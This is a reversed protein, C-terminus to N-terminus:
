QLQYARIYDIEFLVEEDFISNDIGKVGGWSGGIALNVILFFPEHFPWDGSDRLQATEAFTKILEGDVSVHIRDFGNLEDEVWEMTIVHFDDSVNTSYTKSGKANQGNMGNKNKTHLACHFTNPDYGVYEMIDIEGAHPWSGYGLMWLAPWTGRGDPVKLRAEIKGYRFDKKDKSVIRASTYEKGLYDEKRAEIILHGNEVRLNEQRDTYYQLEGNGGGSGNVEYTWNDMNLADGDFEDSWVLAYELPNVKVAVTTQQDGLTASITANGSGVATIVGHFVTAVDENSSAWVLTADTTPAQVVKVTATEGVKIEMTSHDLQLDIGDEQTVDNSDCSTLSMLSLLLIGLYKM